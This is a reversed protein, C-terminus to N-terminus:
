KIQDPKLQNSTERHSKNCNENYQRPQIYSYVFSDEGASEVTIAANVFASTNADTYQSAMSILDAHLRPILGLEKASNIGSHLPLM